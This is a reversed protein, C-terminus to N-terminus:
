LLLGMLFGLVKDFPLALLLVPVFPLLTAAALAAVSALDVPVFRLDRVRDVVQYLDTAASFDGRELIDSPSGTRRAFWELEFQRGLKLALDGYDREGRRRVEILKASFALLPATFLLTTLVVFAGVPIGFQQLAAGEHLVKNAVAGAVIAGLAAGVLALARVSYGLFGIGAAKDPHVPLLNMDLRSLLVLFRTWLVLRWLWGLILILLLPLSVLAAWWGAASLAGPDTASRHWMPLESVPFPLLAAASLAYAILTLAFGVIPADRLKEVSAV